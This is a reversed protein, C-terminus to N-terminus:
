LVTLLGKIDADDMGIGHLTHDIYKVQDDNFNILNAKYYFAVERLKYYPACLWAYKDSFCYTDFDLNFDKLVKGVGDNKIKEVLTSLETFCNPENLWKHRYNTTERLDMLWFYVKMGQITNSCLYDSLEYTDIYYSLTGSHDNNYKKNNKSLPHEGKALKLLYLGGDRILVYGRYYLEARLAYFISYYLEVCAWSICGAKISNCGQVFSVLANYFLGMADMKAMPKLATCDTDTLQYDKFNYKHNSAANRHTEAINQCYAQTLRKEFNIPM